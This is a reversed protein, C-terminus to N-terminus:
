FIWILSHLNRSKGVNLRIRGGLKRWGEREILQSLSRRLMDPDLIDNFRLTWCQVINRLLPTDDFYYVPMIIDTLVTECAPGKRPREFTLRRLFNM